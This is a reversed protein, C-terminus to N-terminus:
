DTRSDETDTTNANEIGELTLQRRPRRVQEAAAASQVGFTIHERYVIDQVDYAYPRVKDLLMIAETPLAQLGFYNCLRSVAEDITNRTASQRIRHNWTPVRRDPRIKIKKWNISAYIYALVRKFAELAENLEESM